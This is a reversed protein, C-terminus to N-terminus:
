GGQPSPAFLTGEGIPKCRSPAAIEGLQSQPLLVPHPADELRHWAHRVQCEIHEPRTPQFM